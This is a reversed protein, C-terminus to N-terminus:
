ISTGRVFNEVTLSRIDGVQAHETRWNGDDFRLLLHLLKIVPCHHTEEDSVLVTAATVPNPVWFLSNDDLGPVVKRQPRSAAAWVRECDASASSCRAWGAGSLTKSSGAGGVSDVGAGAGIVNIGVVVGCGACAGVAGSASWSRADVASGWGCRV